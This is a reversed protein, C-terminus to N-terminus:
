VESFVPSERFMKAGCHTCYKRYKKVDDRTYTLPREIEYGCCSCKYYSIGGYDPFTWHGEVASDELLEAIRIADVRSIGASHIDVCLQVVEPIIKDLDISVIKM